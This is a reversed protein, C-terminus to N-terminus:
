HLHKTQPAFGAIIEKQMWLVDIHDVIIAVREYNRAASRIVEHNANSELSAVVVKAQDGDVLKLVDSTPEQM